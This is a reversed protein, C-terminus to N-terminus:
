SESNEFFINLDMKRCSSVRASCIQSWIQAGSTWSWRPRYDVQDANWSRLRSVFFVRLETLDCRIEIRLGSESDGIRAVLAHLLGMDSDTKQTKSHRGPMACERPACWQVRVTGASGFIYYDDKPLFFLQSDRFRRKENEIGERGRLSFRVVGTSEGPARWEPRIFKTPPLARSPTWIEPLFNLRQRFRRNWGTHAHM